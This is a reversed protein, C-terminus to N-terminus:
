DNNMFRIGKYSKRMRKFKKTNKIKTVIKLKEQSLNKQKQDM